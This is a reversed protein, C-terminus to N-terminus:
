CRCNSLSQAKDILLAAEYVDGAFLIYGGVQNEKLQREIERFEPSDSHLYVARFAPMVLQGVKEKLSLRRLTQRVWNDKATATEQNAKRKLFWRSTLLFQSSLFQSSFHQCISVWRHLKCLRM